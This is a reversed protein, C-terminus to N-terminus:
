PATFGLTSFGRGSYAVVRYRFHGGTPSDYRISENGSTHVSQAVDQWGFSYKKELYLDFDAGAPIDLCATQLGVKADFEYSWTREGEELSGSDYRKFGKCASGGPNTPPTPESSPPTSPGTTPTPSPETTPPTTPTGCDVEGAIAPVSVADWAAKTTACDAAGYLEKAASITASRAKVHTWNSTKRMLAAMWIQGARKLGLGTITSKNCTPSKPQGNTPNSGEALLYFWHNQPGAAAHVETSPIAASFCNAHGALSPDYMYRIPKGDGSLDALEGVEYDPKDNANNAYAETLAGFIDASSENQGNEVNGGGPTTSVVAHGFEHGVVDLVTLQRGGKDSHGYQTWSGNWQANVKNWGVRIPFGKGTGNIGDRGLWDKLMSWEQTVSYMADVCASELDGPKGTTGWTDSSKTFTSGNMDGCAVGPHAPDTMKFSGASGTSGITVPHYYFGNDDATEDVVDEVTWKPLIKGTIADVFIHQKSNALGAKTKKAGTVVVEYALKGSDQAVIVLQPVDVGDVKALQARAVKEAAKASIKAKTGVNLRYSQAAYSSLVQGKANTVVVADGGVVRLGHHTRNLAVYELGSGRTISEQQLQDGDAIKFLKPQSAVLSDTASAALRTPALADAAPTTGADSSAMTFALSGAVVSATTVAAFAFKPKM